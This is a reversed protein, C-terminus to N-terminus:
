IGNLCFILMLSVASHLCVELINAIQWNLLFDFNKLNRCGCFMRSLDECRSTDLNEFNSVDILNDNMIYHDFNDLFDKKNCFMGQFNITTEQDIVLTVTQEGKTKFRYKPRLECDNGNIILHCKNKNNEVFYEGFIYIESSEKENIFYKCKFSKSKNGLGNNIGPTLKPEEM